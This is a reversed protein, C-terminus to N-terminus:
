TEHGSSTPKEEEPHAEMEEQCATMEKRTVLTMEEETERVPILIADEEQAAEPKTNVSALEEEELPAETTKWDYHKRAFFKRNSAEIKAEHFKMRADMRAMLDERDARLQKWFFKMMQQMEMEM